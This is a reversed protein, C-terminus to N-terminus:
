RLWQWLLSLTKNRMTSWAIAHLVPRKRLMAFKQVWSNDTKMMDGNSQQRNIHCFYLWSVNLVVVVFYLIFFICIIILLLCIHFSDIVCSFLVMFCAWRAPIIMTSHLMGFCVNTCRLLTSIAICYICNCNWFIWM